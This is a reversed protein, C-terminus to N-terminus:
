RMPPAGNECKCLSFDPSLYSGNSRHLASRAEEEGLCGSRDPGM